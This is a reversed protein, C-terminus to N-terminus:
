LVDYGIVIEDLEFIEMSKKFTRRPNLLVVTKEVIEGDKTVSPINYLLRGPLKDILSEPLKNWDLSVTNDGKEYLDIIVYKKKSM